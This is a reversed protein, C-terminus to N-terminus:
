PIMALVAAFLDRDADTPLPLVPFDPEAEVPLPLGAPGPDAEAPLLPFYRSEM